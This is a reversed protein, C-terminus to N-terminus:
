VNAIDDRQSSSSSSSGNSSNKDGTQPLKLRSPVPHSPWLSSRSAVVTPLIVVLLFQLDFSLRSVHDFIHFPRGSAAAAVAVADALFAIGLSADRGRAM